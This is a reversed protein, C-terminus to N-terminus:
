SVFSRCRDGAATPQGSTNVLAAVKTALKKHPQSASLIPRRQAIIM